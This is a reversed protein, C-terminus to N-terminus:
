NEAIMVDVRLGAPLRQGADLQVLTELVKTDVRETPEDTRINKRGMLQGVRVVRGTFRRAGYAEATIYASQGERVRAVDAEDVDVRVRLASDDGLRLITDQGQDSVSEGTKLHKRLVIGDIPSRIVTKALLARAEALSARAAALDARAGALDEHRTPRDVLARRESAADYRAQAVTLEREYRDLDVRAIDGTRFLERRRMVDAAANDLVARAEQVAAEAERQEEIRSGNVLRDLAAQRQAVVAEAHSVRAAFDANELRAIVQGRRVRDGEEALVAALKGNLEAGIRLEESVPEVRGPATVVTSSKAVPVSAAPEQRKAGAISGVLVAAAAAAGAAVLAFKKTM